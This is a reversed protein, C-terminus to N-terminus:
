IMRIIWDSKNCIKNAYKIIHYRSLGTVQIAETVSSCTFEERNVTDIAIVKKSRARVSNDELSLWQLNDLSNNKRNGDIHDAVAREFWTNSCFSSMVVRHVYLSRYGSKTALRPHKFNVLVYDAHDPNQPVVRIDDESYRRYITGETSVEYGNLDIIEGTRMIYKAPTTTVKTM